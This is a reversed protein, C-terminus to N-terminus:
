TNKLKSEFKQSDLELKIIRDKEILLEENYQSLM